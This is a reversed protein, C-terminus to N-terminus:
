IQITPRCNGCPVLGAATAEDVSHLKIYNKHARLHMGGCSPLCFMGDSPDGLYRVGTRALTELVEPAAGETDLVARKNGSGFIYDGITYDSRVVRHCPILLPIPNHGLATGVARVAKPRGIERAIWSYPRVEGRPIELAKLLVDREFATLGRLDFPLEIGQIGALKQTIATALQEPLADTQRIPRLFRARFICEFDAPAAAQRIASLGLDNYAVFLLGIPTEILAYHDGAGIQEMVGRLLTPPAPNNQLSRLRHVLERGEKLQDRYNRAM